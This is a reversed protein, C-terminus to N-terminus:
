VSRNASAPTRAVPRAEAAADVIPDAMLGAVILEDNARTAIDYLYKDDVGAPLTVFGSAGFTTDLAGTTTYRAVIARFVNGAAGQEQSRFRRPM